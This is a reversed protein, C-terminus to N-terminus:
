TKTTHIYNKSLYDFSKSRDIIDHPILLYSRAKSDHIKAHETALRCWKVAIEAKEQVTPNIIESAQQIECLYKHDMAEIIFDPEYRKNNRYYLSFSNRPIKMWKMVNNSNELISCFIKEPNSDFKMQLYPSKKFGYFLINKIYSQKDLTETFHIREHNQSITQISHPLKLYGNYVEERYEIVSPEYHLQM